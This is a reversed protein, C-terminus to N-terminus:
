RLMTFRTYRHTAISYQLNTTTIKYWEIDRFEYCLIIAQFMIQVIM